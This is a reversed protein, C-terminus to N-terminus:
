RRAGVLRPELKSPDRLPTRFEVLENLPTPRLASLAEGIRVRLAWFDGPSMRGYRVTGADEVAPLGSSGRQGSLRLHERVEKAVAGRPKQSMKALLTVYEVDQQGRRFAKLRVSPLPLGGNRGPYFLSLPDAKKWSDDNGVTQWPLVGDAGLTWADISWALPQVNSEEINNASGYEIVVQKQEDKRDMVIRRYQRMAGGVVNYDLLGDLSDRQWEPRSIDARFMLKATGPHAAHVGEHFAAGFYRLAWFDQFNAPEDLLWPSSGRSWGNRKFDIKNNLFGQFMTGGWKKQDLHAAFQRSVEVFAERYGPKFAQDAWYSDNYNPAIPTPWNEHLPLYFIEIPVLHRPLDAFATGDFLPGFRRDWDTWDLTKGDWRPACGEAVDGRQSYPVRNLATRHRHALRYYDRENAPLGYCNMEPIFSLRDPLTFEWVRLSVPIKLTEGVSNLELTGQHDGAGAHHPVYVEVHLSQSALRPATMRQSDTDEFGVIPDPLPGGKAEVLGYRGLEIGFDPGGKPDLTLRAKLGEVKGSVVVQFSVFENKAAHLRVQREHASWLHNAALYRAHHAQILQGNVPNVKDLEDIVAVKAGAITPLPDNTTPFPAVTAAPIPSFSSSSLELRLRESQSVNGAGDVARVELTFMGVPPRKLDRLHMTVREGARIARPISSRTAPKGNVSVHFGVTGVPGKDPPTVWSVLAEGAPLELTEARLGTPKSPPERDTEGLSVTFYPASSRNQDTSYVFRNPMHQLEVKEGERKWESGTDDFLLFGESIGAVRAAIVAPDVAVTQWREADPKSADAMGWVTGGQGLMVGCLDGGEPTWPEHPHRASRFSSAGEEPKYSRSTGEVWPAAFSSVTVRELRPPGALKVHLTADKVVRGGLPTVDVDVLSMEQYSKLKLQSAGGNNGAAEEGVGSFWTDRTVPLRVTETRATQALVLVALACSVTLAPM